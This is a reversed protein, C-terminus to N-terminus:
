YFYFLNFIDFELGWILAIKVTSRTTSGLNVYKIEHCMVERLRKWVLSRFDRTTQDGATRPGFKRSM